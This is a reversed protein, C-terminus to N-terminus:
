GPNQAGDSSSRHSTGSQVAGSRLLSRTREILDSSGFPKPIFEAERGAFDQLDSAENPYGSIFLVRLSPREQRLTAVLERGSMRPMVVDTVLLDIVGGHRRSVELAEVGDTAVLVAFGARQLTERVFERVVPEDEAVLVTAEVAASSPPREVAEVELSAEVRPLYIWATTGAGPQSDLWVAGGSQKVIGYVTALGLGTGRGQEKSTFFPDFARAQVDPPMGEGTDRVSLAVYPGPHLDVHTRALATDVEVAGTHLTLTGGAPMADRANVVLNVIVQELQGRDVRVRNHNSAHQAVLQIDEGILRRLM